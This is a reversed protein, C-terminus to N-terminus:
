TRKKKHHHHHPKEKRKKENKKPTISSSSSSITSSSTTSSSSSTTSGKKLMGQLEEIVPSPFWAKEGWKAVTRGINKRDDDSCDILTEFSTTIRKSFREAFRDKENFKHKSHRLIADIVYVVALRSEQKTKKVYKEISHVVNKYFKHNKLASKAVGQIKNGSISKLAFLRKEFEKEGPWEIPTPKPSPKPKPKKKASSKKKSAEDTLSM